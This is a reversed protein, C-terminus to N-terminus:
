YPSNDLIMGAAKPDFRKPFLTIRNSMTKKDNYKAGRFYQKERLNEFVIGRLDAGRLDANEFDTGFIIAGNLKAGRLDAKEFSVREIESASLDVNQLDAGVFSVRRLSAGKMDAEKMKANDFDAYKISAGRLLTGEMNVDCYNPAKEESEPILAENDIIVGTLDANSLDANRFSCSLLKMGRIDIEKFCWNSFNYFIKYEVNLLDRFCTDFAKKLSEYYSFEKYSENKYGILILLQILNSFCIKIFMYEDTHNKYDSIGKETMFQHFIEYTKLGNFVSENFKDINVSESKRMMESLYKMIDPEIDTYRFAQIIRRWVDKYTCETTINNFYDEFLKVAAFYEYVTKHVFEISQGNDDSKAFQFVSLYETNDISFDIEKEGKSKDLGLINCTMKQANSIRNDTNDGTDSLYLRGSLAMQYAIEKTYQWYVKRRLDDESGIFAEKGEFCQIHKRELLARFAKDYINCVSSDSDFDINTHAAIYLLVPVRFVNKRDDDDELSGYFGRFRECWCFADLDKFISYRDCWSNMDDENWILKKLPLHDDKISLGFQNWERSTILIKYDDTELGRLKKFLEGMDFEPCLVVLEDLGDLIFLDNDYEIELDSPAFIREILEKITGYEFGKLLSVCGRLAKIHIKELPIDFLRDADSVIDKGAADAIIKSCLSSKGIGASGFIFLTPHDDDNRYWDEIVESAKKNSREVSPDIYISGLTLRSEKEEFFLPKTYTRIYAANDAKIPLKKIRELCENIKVKNEELEAEVWDANKKLYDLIEKEKKLRELEEFAERLKPDKNIDEKYKSQIELAIEIINALEEDKPYDTYFERYIYTITGEDFFDVNKNEEILKNMIVSSLQGCREFFLRFQYYKLNDPKKGEKLAKKLHKNFLEEFQKQATKEAFLKNETIEKLVGPVSALLFGFAGIAPVSALGAATAAGVVLKGVTGSKLGEEGLDYGLKVLMKALENDTASLFGKKDGKYEIDEQCNVCKYTGENALPLFVSHGCKQCILENMLKASGM